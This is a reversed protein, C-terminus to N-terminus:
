ERRGKDPGHVVEELGVGLGKFISLTELINRPIIGLPSKDGEGGINIWSVDNVKMQSAMKSIEGVLIRQIQQPNITNRAAIRREIAHARAEGKMRIGEAEEAMAEKGARARELLEATEAKAAVDRLKAAAEQRQLEVAAEAREQEAKKEAREVMAQIQQLNLAQEAEAARRALEEEKSKQDMALRHAEEQVAIKSKALLVERERSLETERVLGGHKKEREQERIQSEIEIQREKIEKASQMERQSALLEEESRKIRQVRDAEAAMEALQRETEIRRQEIERKADYTSQEAQLKLQNRFGAQLNEFVERSRIWVETFEITEISLGWPATVELLKARMSDIVKKRETIMEQLTRNSVEHRVVSEALQRLVYDTKALADGQPLFVVRPDNKEKYGDNQINEACTPLEQVAKSKFDLSQYAEEFNIIRYAILGQVRVGQRELTVQDACFNVNRIVGPVKLYTDYPLAFFSIGRGLHIIRGNRYHVVYEDPDVHVYFFRYALAVLSTLGGIVGVMASAYFLTGEM